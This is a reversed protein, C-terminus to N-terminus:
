WHSEVDAQDAEKLNGAVFAEVAERISGAAGTAVKIGATKLVSMAKPGIHGTVVWACDKAAVAGASQVGAGVAANLNQRNEVVEHKGSEDDYIVFYPARGFRQEVESELDDGKSTFCIRM